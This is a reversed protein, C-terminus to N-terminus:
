TEYRTYLTLVKIPKMVLDEIEIVEDRGLGELVFLAVPKDVTYVTGHALAPERL